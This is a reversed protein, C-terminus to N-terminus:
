GGMRSSKKSMKRGVHDSNGQGATRNLRPNKRRAAKSAHAKNYGIIRQASAKSYGSREVQAVAGAFGPHAKSM